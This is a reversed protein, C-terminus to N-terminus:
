YKMVNGSIRAYIDCYTGDLSDDVKGLFWPQKTLENGGYYDWNNGGIRAHIYLVDEKGAYKNWMNYQELNRKVRRKIAFKLAKKKTGHVRDWRIGVYREYGYEEDMGKILYRNRINDTRMSFIHCDANVSFFPIACCLDECVEVACRNLMKNIEDKSVPLENKMLRYGRLRPININNEKAIQDLDNIQVYAGLDM